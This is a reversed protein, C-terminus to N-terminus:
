DASFGGDQEDCLLPWTHLPRYHTGRTNQESAFLSFRTVPWDFSPNADIPQTPCHRLLSLHARFPRSELQIAASSLSTNLQEVLELLAEPTHSPALYLLGNRHRGLRDLHLDFVPAHVVGGLGQLEAVRARPLQGLFALTLHLNATAVPRGPLHLHSRWTAIAEALEPPCGLAFFLRLDDNKM